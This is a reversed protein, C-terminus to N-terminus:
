RETKLCTEFNEMLGFMPGPIDYVLCVTQGLSNHQKIKQVRPADGNPFFRQVTDRRKESISQRAASERQFPDYSPTAPWDEEGIIV